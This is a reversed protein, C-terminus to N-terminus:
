RLIHLKQGFRVEGSKMNNKEIRCYPVTKWGNWNRVQFNKFCDSPIFLYVNSINFMKLTLTNKTESLIQIKTCIIPTIVVMKDNKTIPINTQYLLVQFFSKEFLNDFTSLCQMEFENRFYSLFAKIITLFEFVESTIMFRHINRM